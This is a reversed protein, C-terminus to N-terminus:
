HNNGSASRGMGDYDGDAGNFSTYATYRLGIRIHFRPDARSEPRGFLTGDTRFADLGNDLGTVNGLLCSAELNQDQHTDRANVTGINSGDGMLEEVADFGYGSSQDLRGTSPNNDPWLNSPM